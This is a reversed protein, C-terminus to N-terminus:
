EEKEMQEDGRHNESDRDMKKITCLKTTNLIDLPCFM